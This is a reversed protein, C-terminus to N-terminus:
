KHNQEILDSSSVSPTRRKAVIVHQKCGREVRTSATHLFHSKPPKASTKQLNNFSSNAQDAYQCCHRKHSHLRRQQTTQAALEAVIIGRKRPQLKKTTK